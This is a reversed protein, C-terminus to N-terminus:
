QLEAQPILVGIMISTIVIYIIAFMVGFGMTTELAYRLIHGMVAINWILLFMYVLLILARLLSGSDLSFVGVFLPMAFLGMVCGTGTIAMLTKLWRESHHNLKLIVSTILSIFFTELFSSQISRLYGSTNLGLLFNILIYAILCVTLLEFSQPLDQPRRRFLCMNFFVMFLTSFAKVM